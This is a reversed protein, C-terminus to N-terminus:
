TKKEELKIKNKPLSYIFAVRVCFFIKTKTKIHMCTINHYFFLIFDLIICVCVCVNLRLFFLYICLSSLIYGLNKTTLPPGITTSNM